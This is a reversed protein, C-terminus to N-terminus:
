KLKIRQYDKYKAYSSIIVQDGEKLGSKVEFFRDDFIGVSINIKEASKGSKNIKFIYNMGSELIFDDRKIVLVGSKEGLIVKATFKIGPFLKFNVPEELQVNATAYDYTDHQNSVIVSNLEKITGQRHEGNKFLLMAKQKVRIDNLNRQPVKLEMTYNNKPTIMFCNSNEKLYSGEQFYTETIIGDYPSLLKEQNIKEKVDEIKVKLSEIQNQISVLNNENIKREVQYKEAVYLIDEKLSNLEYLLKNYEVKSIAGDQYLKEKVHLEEERQLKEKEKQQYTNEFDLQAIQNHLQQESLKTNLGKLELSFDRLQKQYQETNITALLTNKTVEQGPQVYIKELAGEIQTKIYFSNNSKVEGDLLLTRQVTGKKVVDFRYDEVLINYNKMYLWLILMGCVISLIIVALAYKKHNKRPPKKLDMSSQDFIRRQQSM